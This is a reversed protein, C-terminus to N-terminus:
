GNRPAHGSTREPAAASPIKEMLYNTLMVGNREAQREELVRYGRKEFFPRATVSAHTIIRVFPAAKELERCLASAIGRRQHDKHVFLRDLYGGADIDAFGVIKGDEEAVFSFHRLFRENWATLDTKEPAWAACQRRGYDRRNVSHVTDYFLAATERCDSERYKRIIM